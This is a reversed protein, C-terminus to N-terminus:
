PMLILLPARRRRLPMDLMDADAHCCILLMLSFRTILCCCRMLMMFMASSFYRLMMLMLTDDDSADREVDVIVREYRLPMLTAREADPTAARAPPLLRIMLAEAADLMMLM